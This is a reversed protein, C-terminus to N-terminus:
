IGAAVQEQLKNNTLSLMLRIEDENVDFGFEKVLRKVGGSDLKGETNAYQQYVQRVRHKDAFNKLFARKIEKLKHM